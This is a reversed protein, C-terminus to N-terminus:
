RLIVSFEIPRKEQFHETKFMYMQYYPWTKIEQVNGLFHSAYSERPDQSVFLDSFLFQWKTSTVM